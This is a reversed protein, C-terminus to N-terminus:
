NCGCDELTECIRQVNELIEQAETYNGLAENYTIAELKMRVKEYEQLTCEDCCDCLAKVLMDGECKRSRCVELSNLTFEYVDAQALAVAAAFDLVDETAKWFAANTVANNLNGAVLSKYYLDTAVNYAIEGAAYTIVASWVLCAFVYQEYWGDETIAYSWSTVTNDNYAAITIPERGSTKRLNVLFKIYLNARTENPAGYGTPNTTVNYNGTTDTNVVTGCDATISTREIALVLAM